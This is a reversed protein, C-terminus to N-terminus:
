LNPQTGFLSTKRIARFHSKVHWTARHGEKCCRWVILRLASVHTLSACNLVFCKIHCVCDDFCIFFYFFLLMCTTNVTLM